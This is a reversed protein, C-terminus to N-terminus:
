KAKRIANRPIYLVKGKQEDTCGDTVRVRIRGSDDRAEGLYSVIAGDYKGNKSKVMEYEVGVVLNSKLSPPIKADLRTTSRPRGAKPEKVGLAELRDACADQIEALHSDFNGSRIGLKVDEVISTIESEIDGAM